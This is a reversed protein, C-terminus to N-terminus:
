LAADEAYASEIREGSHACYLMPNEWNIDVAAARWGSGHWGPSITAQCIDRWQERASEVSLSEGDAMIIYKPYGGPWAYPQRIADKVQRLIAAPSENNVTRCRNPMYCGALGYTVAYRAPHRPM